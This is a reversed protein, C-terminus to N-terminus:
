SPLLSQKLKCACGRWLEAMQHKMVPAGAVNLAGQVSNWWINKGMGMGM